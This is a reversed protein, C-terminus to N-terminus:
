KKEGEKKMRRLERRAWRNWRLRAIFEFDSAFEFAKDLCELCGEEGCWPHYFGGTREIWISSGCRPCEMPKIM